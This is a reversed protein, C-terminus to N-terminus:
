GLHPHGPNNTLFVPTLLLPPRSEQPHMQNGQAHPLTQAVPPKHSLGLHPAAGTGKEAVAKFAQAGRVKTEM